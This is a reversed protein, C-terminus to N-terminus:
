SARTPTSPDNDNHVELAYSLTDAMGM